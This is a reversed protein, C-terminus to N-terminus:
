KGKTYPNGKIEDAITTTEGHGPYVVTDGPLVYLRDIISSLEEELSGTPFDGRGVEFRFLTDGSILKDGILYCVSDCSHGPTHIVKVDIDGVKIVEGDSVKVDATLTFPKRCYRDTLNNSANAFMIDCTEHAAVKANPFKELLGEVATIHDFHGHTLMIYKLDLHNATLYDCIPEAKFPADFLIAEHTKEDSVIYANNEM